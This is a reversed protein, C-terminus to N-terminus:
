CIRWPTQSRPPSPLPHPTLLLLTNPQLHPASCTSAALAASHAHSTFDLTPLPHHPGNLLMCMCHLVALCLLCLLCLLCHLGGGVDRGRTQKHLARLMEYVAFKVAM